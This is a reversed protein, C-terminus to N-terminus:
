SFGAHGPGKEVSSITAGPDDLHSRMFPELRERLEDLEM